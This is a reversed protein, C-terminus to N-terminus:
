QVHFFSSIILYITMLYSFLESCAEERPTGNIQHIIKTLIESLVDSVSTETVYRPEFILSSGIWTLDVISFPTSRRSFYTLIDNTNELGFLDSIKPLIGSEISRQISIIDIPEVVEPAVINLRATSFWLLFKEKWNESINEYEPNIKVDDNAKVFNFQPLDTEQAEKTKKSSNNQKKPKPTPKKKKQTESEKEGINAKKKGNENSIDKIGFVITEPEKKDKEKVSEEAAPKVINATKMFSLASVKSM